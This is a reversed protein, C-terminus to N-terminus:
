RPLRDSELEALGHEVIPHFARGVEDEVRELVGRTNRM